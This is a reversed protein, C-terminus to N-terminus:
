GAANVNTKDEDEGFLFARDKDPVSMGCLHDTTAENKLEQMVSTTRPPVIIKNLVM